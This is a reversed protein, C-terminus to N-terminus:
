KQRKKKINHLEQGTSSETERKEEERGKKRGGKRGDV